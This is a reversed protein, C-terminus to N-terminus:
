GGIQSMLRSDGQSELFHHKEPKRQIASFVQQLLLEKNETQLATKLECGDDMHLCTKLCGDATIRIRDCEACFCHGLASIFGIKGKFGALSYYCAPGNGLRHEFPSLKGYRSELVSFIDEKTLGPCSKGLGIPMLEIFRVHIPNTKTLEAIDCIAEETLEGRAVTNVKINPLGVEVAKELGSLVRKLEGVRTIARFEDPDLTDISINIGDLKAKKLANAYKTLQIGNTTLTVKEIGKVEKIAKILPVIENRTLPEGGTIKVKKIGQLALNEILFLIEEVSLVEAKKLFRMGTAPMCYTCRLDCRDTVSLRVYDVERNFSDKM